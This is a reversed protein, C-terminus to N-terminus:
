RSSRGQKQDYRSKQRKKCTQLFVRPVEIAIGENHLLSPTPITSHTRSTRTLAWASVQGCCAASPKEMDVTSRAATGGPLGHRRLETVQLSWLNALSLRRQLEAFSEVRGSHPDGLAWLLFVHRTSYPGVQLRTVFPVPHLAEQNSLLNTWQKAPHCCRM